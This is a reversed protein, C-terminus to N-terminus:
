KKEPGKQEHVIEPDLEILTRSIIGIFDKEKDVYSSFIKRFKRIFM